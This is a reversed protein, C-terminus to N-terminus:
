HRAYHGTRLQCTSMWGAPPVGTAQENKSGASSGTVEVRLHGESFSTNCSSEAQEPRLEITSSADDTQELFIRYRTVVTKNFALRPESCHWEIFERIAYEHGHRPIPSTL